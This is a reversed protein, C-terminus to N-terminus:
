ALASNHSRSNSAAPESQPPQTKTLTCMTHDVKTIDHKGKVTRLLNQAAQLQIYMNMHDTRMLACMRRHRYM